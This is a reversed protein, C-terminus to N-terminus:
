EMLTLLERPRCRAIVLFSAGVSVIVVSIGALGSVAAAAPSIGMDPRAEVEALQAYDLDYTYGHPQTEDGVTRSMANEYLMDGAKGSLPLAIVASLCYAALFVCTCELLHQWFINKKSVGFSMLVGAEHIRDREWLTLLLALLVASVAIILWVALSTMGALRELPEVSKQYATNNASMKLSKWDIGEMGRVQETVEELEKPDKVFFAAGSNFVTDSRGQLMDAIRMGTTEDIFIFNAPLDCEPTTESRDGKQMEDFIGAVELTIDAGTQSGDGSGEGTVDVSVTDGTRIDNALALEKSVLAKGRDSPKIHRGEELTLIDLVFSEHLSSDTNGLFRAQQAKSDGEMTFRGPTLTLEPLPLYYTCMANYSGIGGAQMVKDILTQDVQQRINMKEYDVAIKFYGGMEERLRAAAEESSRNVALDLLVLTMITLFTIFLLVSKGTKRTLYLFARRWARM